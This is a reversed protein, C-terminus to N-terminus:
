SSPTEEPYGSWLEDERFPISAFKPYSCVTGVQVFKGIGRLRAEEILHLGMAMNAYFFRGPKAQNAGIGGVEGALHIVTHPRALEYLAAVRDRETLDFEARRPVIVEAAGQQEVRECVRRGLFGAGGTILVRQDRIHSSVRRLTHLPARCLDTKSATATARETHRQRAVM